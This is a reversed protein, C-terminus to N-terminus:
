VRVNTGPVARPVHRAHFNLGSEWSASWPSMSRSQRSQNRNARTARRTEWSTPDHQAHLCDGLARRWSQGGAPILTKAIYVNTNQLCVCSGSTMDMALIGHRCKPAPNAPEEKKKAHSASRALSHEETDAVIHLKWSANQRANVMSGPELCLEQVCLGLGM